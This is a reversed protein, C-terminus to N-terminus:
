AGPQIFNDSLYKELTFDEIYNEFYHFERHCNACLVVCKNIENELRELSATRMENINHNKEEKNIHHFDLLYFRQEGCKQCGCSKRQKIYELNREKYSFTNEIVQNKREQYHIKEQQSQCQKCQSHRLNKSKNKWRFNEVPLIQKCKSCQKTEM